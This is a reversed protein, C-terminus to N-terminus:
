NELAKLGALAAMMLGGLGQGGVAGGVALPAGGDVAVSEKIQEVGLQPLDSRKQLREIPTAVAFGLLLPETFPQPCGGRVIGIARHFRALHNLLQDGHGPLEAQTSLPCCGQPQVEGLWGGLLRGTTSPGSPMPRRGGTNSTSSSPGRQRSTNICSM